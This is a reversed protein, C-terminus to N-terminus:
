GKNIGLEKETLRTNIRAIERRIMRARLPNDLHGLVKNVRLDLYEKSLADRKATLEQETMNKYSNKM